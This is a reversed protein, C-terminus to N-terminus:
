LHRQLDLNMSAEEKLRPHCCGLERKGVLERIQTNSKNHWPHEGGSIMEWMVQTLTNPSYIAVRMTRSYIASGHSVCECV